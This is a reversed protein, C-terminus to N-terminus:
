DVCANDNASSVASECIVDPVNALDRIRSDVKAYVDLPAGIITWVMKPLPGAKWSKIPVDSTDITGLQEAVDDQLQDVEEATYGMAELPLEETLADLADVLRKNDRRSREATRNDAVAYGAASPGELKSRTIKVTEWGLSKAAMWVGNGRLIRADAKVVIPTQQGYAALSAAIFELDEDTHTNVNEPDVHISDIPVEEIQV